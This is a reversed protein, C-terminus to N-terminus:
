IKCNHEVSKNQDSAYETYKYIQVHGYTILKSSMGIFIKLQTSNSNFWAVNLGSDPFRKVLSSECIYM